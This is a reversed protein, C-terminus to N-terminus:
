PSSHVSIEIENLTRPLQLGLCFTQFLISYELFVPCSFFLKREINAHNEAAIALTQNRSPLSPVVSHAWGFKLTKSCKRIEQSGIPLEYVLNAISSILNQEVQPSDYRCQFITFNWFIIVLIATGLVSVTYKATGM